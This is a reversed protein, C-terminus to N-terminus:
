LLSELCVYGYATSIYAYIWYISLNLSFDDYISTFFATRLPLRLVSVKPVPRRFDLFGSQPCQNVPIPLKIKLNNRTKRWM